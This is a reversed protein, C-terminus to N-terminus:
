KKERSKKTARHVVVTLQNDPVYEALEGLTCEFYMCLRDLNDTVTNCGRENAIKSLVGRNIGTAQALEQMTTAKGDRFAKEALLEKLRFRIM